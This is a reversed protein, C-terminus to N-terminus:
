GGGGSKDGFCPISEKSPYCRVTQCYAIHEDHTPVIMVQRPNLWFPWKGAYNETLIAIMREVSGLMARHVMVPIDFGADDGGEGTEQGDKAEVKAEGSKNKYKLNFRRPLVFDLQVTACQHMRNMADFVKIDIKPGYFAGDGPNERWNGPGVFEDLALQLQEEAMDWLALGEPTDANAAKKPRTSLELKYTMQFQKYVFQMFDLAGLV